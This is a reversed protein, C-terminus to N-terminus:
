SLMEVRNRGHRKAQYLANDAAHVLTHAGAGAMPVMAAVGISATVPHGTPVLNAFDVAAVARRVTDAIDLAGNAATGPLIVAFEEGGYRCVMDGARRVTDRISRAVGALFADGVLHGYLDNVSKFHDVDIMLLGLPSGDRLARFWEKHLTLDFQRRNPLGTLADTAALAALEQNAAALANEAHRRREADRLSVVFAGLDSGAPLDAVRAEVWLTGGDRRLARFLDPGPGRRASQTFHRTIFSAREDPVLLEALTHGPLADAPWDLMTLAAPSAYRIRLNADVAVILDSSHDALLRYHAEREPAPRAPADFPAVLRLLRGDSLPLTFLAGPPTDFGTAPTHIANALLTRGQGDELSFAIGQGALWHSVDGWEQIDM